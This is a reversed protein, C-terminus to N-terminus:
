SHTFPKHRVFPPFLAPSLPPHHRRTRRGATDPAAQALAVSVNSLLFAACAAGAMAFRSRLSRLGALWTYMLLGGDFIELKFIQGINYPSGACSKKRSNM